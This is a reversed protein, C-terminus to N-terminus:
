GEHSQPTTLPADIYRYFLSRVLSPAIFKPVYTVVNRRCFSVLTHMRFFLCFKFPLQDHGFFCAWSVVSLYFGHVFCCLSYGRLHYLIAVIFQSRRPIQTSLRPAPFTLSGGSNSARRSSLSIYALQTLGVLDSIM